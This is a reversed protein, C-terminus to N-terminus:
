ETSRQGITPKLVRASMGSLAGKIEARKGDDNCVGVIAGGSGTLKASVGLRRVAEIMARDGDDIAMIDSRLNFNMDILESLREHDGEQIAERGEDALAAIQELTRTVTLDGDSWRARLDGHIQGSDKTPRTHYAVYMGPLLAPDLPEYNGHGQSCILHESFDMYVLGEYVQAVRDQLGAAIGLEDVEASLILGPQIEKPIDVEYFKMLARLTATVIASSGALGVQRPITSEYRATFNRNGLACDQIECYDHFVKVTAMLLRTGGYYGLRRVSDALHDVSEYSEFDRPGPEIRISSSEELIVQVSFDNLVFSLTRGFYGDSPNGLLGVRAYAHGHITADAM